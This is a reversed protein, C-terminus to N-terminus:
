AFSLKEFLVRNNSATTQNFLVFGNPSISIMIFFLALVIFSPLIIPIYSRHKEVPKKANAVIKRKQAETLRVPELRQKLNHM